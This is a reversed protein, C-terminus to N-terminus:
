RRLRNSPFRRELNSQKSFTAFLPVARKPGLRDCQELSKQFASRASFALRDKHIAVTIREFSRADSELQLFVELPDFRRSAM